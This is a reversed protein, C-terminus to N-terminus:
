HALSIAQAAAHDVTRMTDNGAKTIAIMNYYTSDILQRKQDPPIEPNKFINHVLQGEQQLTKDIGDLKMMAGPNMQMLKTAAEADGQKALNQVTAYVMSRHQYDERFAQISEATSSPYRVVFAKVFPIDALTSSPLVPDPLVGAKRLGADAMQLAYSGLGGTWQRIYNDIVVPAASSTDGVYPVKGVIGGISKTLESTYDTYRYEPLLKNLHDPVLTNNKFFSHNTIQEMVPLMATPIINPTAQSASGKLFEKIGRHDEDGDTISDLLREVSSGFLTGLLFPKPIRMTIGGMPVFWFVDREWQHAEKWEESNHNAMWLAASPVTIGAFIKALTPIPRDRLAGVLQDTHQIEINFLATMANWTATANGIRAPDPAINRSDYGADMINGKTPDSDGLARKFAGLRTSAELATQVGHLVDLPTKALNWVQGLVNTEPYEGTLKHMQEQVSDRDIASAAGIQGGSKLWNQYSEDEGIYSVLGKFTDWFPVNGKEAITSAALQNRLLHRVIFEPTALGLRFLAAPGKLLSFLLGHNAQPTGNFAQALDPDVRVVKYAGQDFYGVEDAALPQRVARFVTLAADPVDTMGHENLFKTMENDGVTVAQLRPPVKEFFQSPDDAKSALDVFSKAAANREALTVYSYTNKIVSEIPDIIDRDSGRINRIPNKVKAGMGLGAANQEDMVRYFPVYNKNAERMASYSEDSLIGSDKLYKTISDQYDNLDRFVPEYKGAGAAVVQKAADMPMGSNIGRGELEVARSAAAYARFGDLDDKVPAIVDKLSKGTNELTNFDFAGHNLFQEAKGTVGPLLRMLKYSNEEAGLKNDGALAETVQRIPDLKDVAAAYFKDWSMGAKETSGGINIKDLIAKQAAEDSGAEPEPTAPEAAPEVAAPSEPAAAESAAAEPKEGVAEGAAVPKGEGADPAAAAAPDVQSEYAKPLDVNPSAIDQAIAPDTQAAAVVEHPPVGTKAYVNRLKAAGELAGKAGLMVVAADLFDQAKPVEGNLAAGTTTMASVEAGYKAVSQVMPAAAKTAVGAAIGAGGTAAGTLWSKATDMAIGSAREWFDGFNKFDGKEYSDMLTARLGAPLAFAGAAGTVAAAPGAAAGSAGGVVAGALMAPVDGVVQAAQGAIRQYMPTDASLTKDPMRGRAVLGSVSMQFGADIADMLTTAPKATGSTAAQGHNDLNTQVLNKVGSMDPQKVGFYGNVEDQSFGAATLQQQKTTMWQQVEDGTFGAATLQSMQDQAAM